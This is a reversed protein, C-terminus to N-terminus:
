AYSPPTPSGTTQVKIGDTSIIKSLLGFLQETSRSTRRAYDTNKEGHSIFHDMQGIRDQVAPIAAAPTPGPMAPTASRSPIMLTPPLIKSFVNQFKDFVREIASINVPPTILPMLQPAQLKPLPISGTRLPGEFQARWEKEPTLGRGGHVGGSHLGTEVLRRTNTATQRAYDTLAQGTSDEFIGIRALRDGAEYKNGTTAASTDFKKDGEPVAEAGTQYLKEMKAKLEAVLENLRTEIPGTKSVGMSATGALAAKAEEYDKKAANYNERVAADSMLTKDLGILGSRDPAFMKMEKQAQEMEARPDRATLSNITEGVVATLGLLASKIMPASKEIGAAISLGLLEGLRAEKMAEVAVRLGEGIKAGIKIGDFSKRLREVLGELDPAIQEALGVFVGEIKTRLGAFANVLRTATPAMREYLKGQEATNERARQIAAPDGFLSMVGAGGRGFIARTAAAKSEQDSLGSIAKGIMDLQDVANKGKLNDINLGLQEFIKKTPEGQENVGGLAVQMMTLIHPVGEAGIGVEEFAKRLVVLDQISQGTQNHLAQLEKGTDFVNKIAGVAGEISKFAGFGLGLVGAVAGLKGLASGIGSTASRVSSEAHRLPGTFGATQLGMTYELVNPM